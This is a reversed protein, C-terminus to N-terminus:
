TNPEDSPEKEPLAFGAGRQAMVRLYLALMSLGVSALPPLTSGFLELALDVVIGLMLIRASWGKLLVSRWEPILM